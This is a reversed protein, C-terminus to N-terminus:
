LCYYYLNPFYMNECLALLFVFQSVWESNQRPSLVKVGFPSSHVPLPLVWPLSVVQSCSSLCLPPYGSSLLHCCPLSLLCFLFGSNLLRLSESSQTGPYVADNVSTLTTTVIVDGDDNVERSWQMPCTAIRLVKCAVIYGTKVVARHPLHEQTGYSPYPLQPVLASVQGINM